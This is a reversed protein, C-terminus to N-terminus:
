NPTTIHQLLFHDFVKSVDSIKWRNWCKPFRQTTTQKVRYQRNQESFKTLKDWHPRKITIIPIYETNRGASQCKNRSRIKHAFKWGTHINCFVAVRTVQHVKDTKVLRYSSALQRIIYNQQFIFDLLFSFIYHVLSCPLTWVCILMEDFHIYLFDISSDSPACYSVITM